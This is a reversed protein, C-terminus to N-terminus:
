ETSKSAAQSPLPQEGAARGLVAASMPGAPPTGTQGAVGTPVAGSVQAPLGAYVPVFWVGYDFSRLDIATKCRAPAIRGAKKKSPGCECSLSLQVWVSHPDTRQCKRRKATRTRTSVNKRHGDFALPGDFSAFSTTSLLPLTTLILEARDSEFLGNMSQSSTEVVVRNARMKTANTTLVRVM